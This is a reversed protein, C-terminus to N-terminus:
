PRTLVRYFRQAQGSAVKDVLCNTSGNGPVPSGLDTWLNTTLESRYQAQYIRNSEANWCVEVESVRITLAPQPLVAINFSEFYFLSQSATPLYNLGQLFVKSWGIPRGSGALAAAWAKDWTDLQGGANDWCRVQVLILGVGDWQSPYLDGADFFGVARVGQANTGTGFFTLSGPLPLGNTMLAFVDSVPVLLSYYGEASYNTGALRLGGYSQTGPFRATPENGWKRLTPHGPESGYVAALPGGQAGSNNFRFYPGLPNAIGMLVGAVLMMTTLPAKM